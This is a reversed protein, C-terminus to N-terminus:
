ISVPNTSKLAVEPKEIGDAYNRAFIEPYRKKKKLESKKKYSNHAYNGPEKWYQCNFTRKDEIKM